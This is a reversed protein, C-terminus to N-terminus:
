ACLVIHEQPPSMCPLTCSSHNTPRSSPICYIAKPRAPGSAQVAEPNTSAWCQQSSGETTGHCTHLLLM